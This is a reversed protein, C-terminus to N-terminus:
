QQNIRLKDTVGRLTRPAAGALDYEHGDELAVTTASGTLNASSTLNLKYAKKVSKRERQLSEVEAEEGAKPLVTPVLLRLILVEAEGDPHEVVVEVIGIQLPEDIAKELVFWRDPDDPVDVFDVVDIGVDSSGTFDL